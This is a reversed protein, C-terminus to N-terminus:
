VEVVVAGEKVGLSTLYGQVAEIMPPPGCVYFKEELNDINEKLFKESIRGSSYGDVEEDSLINIFRNGLLNEFEKKHIINYSLLCLSLLIVGIMVLWVMNDLRLTQRTYIRSFNM